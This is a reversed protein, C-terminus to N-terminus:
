NKVVSRNTHNNFPAVVNPMFVCMMIVYDMVVKRMGASHNVVRMMVFGLIIISLMIASLM